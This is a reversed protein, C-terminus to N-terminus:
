KKPKIHVVDTALSKISIKLTEGKQSAAQMAAEPNHKWRPYQKDLNEFLDQAITEDLKKGFNQKQQKKNNTPTAMNIRTIM